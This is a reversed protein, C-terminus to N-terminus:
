SEFISFLSTFFFNIIPCWPQLRGIKDSPALHVFPPILKWPIFAAARRGDGNGEGGKREMQGCMWATTEGRLLLRTRYTAIM